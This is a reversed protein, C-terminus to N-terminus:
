LPGIATADGLESLAEVAARRVEPASDALADLLYSVAIRSRTSGLKQAAEARETVTAGLRLDRASSVLLEKLSKNQSDTMGGLTAALVPQSDVRGVAEAPSNAFHSNKTRM